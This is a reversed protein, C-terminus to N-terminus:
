SNNKGSKASVRARDRDLTQEDNQSHRIHFVLDEDSNGADALLQNLRVLTHRSVRCISEVTSGLRLSM